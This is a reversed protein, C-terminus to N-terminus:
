WEEDWINISECTFQSGSSYDDYTKVSKSPDNDSGCIIGQHQLKVVVLSPQIYTKM